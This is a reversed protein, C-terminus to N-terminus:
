ALIIAAVFAALKFSSIYANGADTGALPYSERTYFIKCGKPNGAKLDQIAKIAKAQNIGAKELVEKALGTDEMIMLIIAKDFHNFTGIPYQRGRQDIKYQIYGKGDAQLQELAAINNAQDPISGMDLFATKAEGQNSIYTQADKKAAKTIIAQHEMLGKLLPLAKIMSATMTLANGQNANVGKIIAQSVQEHSHPGDLFISEGDSNYGDEKYSSPKGALLGHESGKDQLLGELITGKISYQKTFSHAKSVKGDKISFGGMPLTKAKTMEQLNLCFAYGPKTAMEVEEQSTSEKGILIQGTKHWTNALSQTGAMHIFAKIAKEMNSSEMATNIIQSNTGKYKAAMFQKLDQTIQTTTNM